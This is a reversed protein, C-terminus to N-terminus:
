GDDDDDRFEWRRTTANAKSPFFPRVIPVWEDGLHGLIKIRTQTSNQVVLILSFAVSAVLGTQEVLLLHPRPDAEDVPLLRLCPSRFGVEVGVFLTLLFTGLM